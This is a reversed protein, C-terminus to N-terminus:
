VDEAPGVLERSVTEVGNEITTTQIYIMGNIVVTEITTEEDESSTSESSSGTSAANGATATASTEDPSIESLGQAQQVLNSVVEELNDVTPVGLNVAGENMATALATMNEEDTLDEITLGLSNMTMEISDANARFADQLVSMFDSSLTTGASMGNEVMKADPGYNGSPIPIDQTAISNSPIYSDKQTQVQELTNSNISTQAMQGAGVASITKLYNSLNIEM